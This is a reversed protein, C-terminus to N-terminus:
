GRCCGHQSELSIVDADDNMPLERAPESFNGSDAPRDMASAALAPVFSSLALGTQILHRRSIQNTHM